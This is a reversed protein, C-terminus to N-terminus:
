DAFRDVERKIWIDCAEPVKHSDRIDNCISSHISQIKNILKSFETVSMSYVANRKMVSTTNELSALTPVMAGKEDGGDEDDKGGNIGKQFFPQSSLSQTQKLLPCRKMHGELNESLVTSCVLYFLLIM